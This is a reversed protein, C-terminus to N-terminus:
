DVIGYRDYRSADYSFRYAYLIKKMYRNEKLTKCSAIQM